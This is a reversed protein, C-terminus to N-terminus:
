LLTWLKSYLKMIGDANGALVVPSDIVLMGISYISRHFLNQNM